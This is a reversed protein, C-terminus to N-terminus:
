RQGGDGHATRFIMLHDNSLYRMGHALAAKLALTTKGSGRDGVVIIVRGHDAMASAHLMAYRRQECFDILAERICKRATIAANMPDAARLRVRRAGSDVLYGVGCRNISMAGEPTGVEVDFRWGVVPDVADDFTYFERLYTLIVPDDVNVGVSVPGM